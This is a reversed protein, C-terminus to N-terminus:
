NSIKHANKTDLGLVRFLAALGLIENTKNILRIKNKHKKILKINQILRGLLKAREKGESCIIEEFDIALTVNNKKAINCLIENLGSDRQKLRDRGLKHQLILMDIKKMELIKRNFEIDRGLVMTQEKNKVRKEVQKRIENLNESVIINM